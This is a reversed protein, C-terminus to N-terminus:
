IMENSQCVDLHCTECEYPYAEWVVDEFNIELRTALAFIWSAIDALEMKAQGINKHRFELSMEGAEEALHAATQILLIRENQWAYLKAHLLQYEYLTKPERRERDRHLRRLINERNATDPHEAGCICNQERLCYPCIGPYKEWLIDQIDCDYQNAVANYWSYIRALQLPMDKRKDKRALEMMKSIEEMLRRILDAESYLKENVASYIHRFM